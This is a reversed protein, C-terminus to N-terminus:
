ALMEVAREAAGDRAWPGDGLVVIADAKPGSALERLVADVGAAPDIPTIGRALFQRRVEESAMGLKDWPGWNMAVVRAGWRASLMQAMANYVGNAAGYDAQGRNGFAATVSSMLVLAGLSDARLRRALTFVSDAKTHVVRDFSEASKDEILKDEIIGAGHVVVDLRRHQRYIDDLLAGLSAEDRVDVQRYEVRAGAAACAALTRRIERNRQVRGFAAEVDVPRVAAQTRALRSALAGKLAAGDLGATSSDEAEDPRPSLGALVLTPRVSRALEVALEATIGRAGGTLLVVSDAAIPASGRPALAAARAALTVRKAGTYGIELPGDADLEAVIREAAREVPEAAEFDVVRMRVEPFEIAATRMYGVIGGHTPRDFRGAQGFDGGLATVALVAAGRARGIARLDVASAQVLIQLQRLDTRVRRQWDAMGLAEIAPSPALPAVHVLAAVAGSERLRDLARTANDADTWDAFLEGGALEVAGSRQRLLVAREGAARLRACVAAAAGAGDDTVLTFGAQARSSIKADPRPADVVSFVVRPLAPAAQPAPSVAQQVRVPAAAAPAAPAAKPTAGSLTEEIVRSLERLTKLGTLRDMVAQLQAQEGASRQRRFSAIIEVRKISDIGLDAEINLDLGLMDVPYGTRESVIRLLEGGLDPQPPQAPAAAPVAQPAEAAPASAPAAAGAGVAATMAAAIERLTKLRTLTDMASQLKQQDADSCSRRVASLIEVRKISDIGLDAEIGLDPDLMEPAYGTREAAVAVLRAAFDVAAAPAPAPAAPVPALPAAPAPAAAAPAPLPAAPQAPPAALAPAPMAVPAPTLMPVPLPAPAPVPHGNAAGLYASMIAAQTELFRAMMQQFQLMVADAGPSQPVPEDMTQPGTTITAPVTAPATALVAAPEARPPVAAALPVPTLPEAPASAPRAGAGNVVWAAARRTSAPRLASDLGETARGDFLRSLDLKVGCAALQALAHLLQVIGHREGNDIAIAVADSVIRRTLSTLVARPGVELFIRAGADHMARVEDVFRVPSVLHESLLAGIRAPDQPYAAALSNSFVPLRPAAFRAAALAEDLRARAGRMLPTHFACAVPIGKAAIGARGLAAVADDVAPALGAIITQQPANFNALWVDPRDGLAARVADAGAAAAAMTGPADGVADKIARGRRESLRALTPEDIVGAAHLAVYEGYSHGATMEPRLGVSALVKLLGTEVAGLAPQAVATDTLARARADQEAPAFAAPPYIYTSLRRPLGGDLTRDFADLTERLEPFQVALDRLMGPAQSGQGPFLFALKGARPGSGIYVGRPDALTQTGAALADAAVALKARLDDHSAAVIALRVHADAVQASARCVAASLSRLSPPPAAALSERIAALSAGLAPASAAGWTFVEAPWEDCGPERRELFDGTYEELVAHFNTGGFGFSSVGARRPTGGTTWPVPEANLYFPSGSERLRANPQEVHLTPPLVRHHLALAAKLLGAVGASAKTHGIMSKVSGIACSEPAAGDARFVDDLAAVEAADGAVTGTGHAEILGVTSPAIRAQAYARRLARMQGEPRPATLGKGRGDSSGAVAKLVAYIRDGDREADEVRKLVLAVVGESIAIGDAGADFTRCRGRPSLAQATSFCMYGFPTQVTDIGGVVVVDSTRRQLEAAALQVAALSSACAADVTYNVGGFNFRNAVRGAAVNLLIGAFSDETWEPLRDFVEAPAGSVLSPLMSRVGYKLGLDGLGGSAGFIVSTKERPFPRDALGADRMAQDVVELALLQLSDISPLASPPIGYKVPDFPVDGLFGGWKSVIRDRAKLDRDFYADADFRAKPVETIADVKNLVNSWFTRVDPAGPLVCGVGVIAVDSPPPLDPEAAPAPLEVGDFLAMGGASVDRHLEEIRLVERRLAAVQGLMYMGDLRQQEADVDLYRPSGDPAAERVIGKSALRLRGLNQTELTDKVEDGRRGEAALQRKLERFAQFYPTDACRIAHGPATEFLVTRTCDLAERQFGEVIARSAVAEHTFLYATGILVGTRVGAAALPASLAAVMAASRADHIGGAFAVHLEAAPVGGRVMELLVDAMATWLVFSTRPGVHGGCERGEFVFRRAGSEVFARLLGPSPVHLYTPIGDRELSAAQDPRGGAILAFAPKVAHIVELQEQRLEPPVFGLIGVGWPRAGLRARTDELLRRVQPGRMLALALFPLAGGASVADAFDPTDSVRTMPGQLIPYTTGHALAM